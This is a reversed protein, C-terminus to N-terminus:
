QDDPLDVERAHGGLRYLVQVAGADGAYRDWYGRCLVEGLDPRQGYTTLHCSLVSGSTRNHEILEALRGPRLRM